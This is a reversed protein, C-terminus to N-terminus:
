HTILYMLVIGFVTGVMFGAGLGILYWRLALTM